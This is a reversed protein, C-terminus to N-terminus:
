GVTVRFTLTRLESKTTWPKGCLGYAPLVVIVVSASVPHWLQKAPVLKSSFNFRVVESRMGTFVLIREAVLASMLSMPAIKRLRDPCSVFPHM